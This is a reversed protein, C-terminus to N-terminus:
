GYAAMFMGDSRRKRGDAVKKMRAGLQHQNTMDVRLKGYADANAAYTIARSGQIAM